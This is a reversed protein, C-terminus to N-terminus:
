MGNYIDVRLLSQSVHNVLTIEKHRAKHNDISLCDIVAFLPLELQSYCLCCIRGVGVGESLVPPM